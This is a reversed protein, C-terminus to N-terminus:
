NGIVFRPGEAIKEMGRWLEYRAYPERVSLIVENAAADSARAFRMVNSRGDDGILRLDYDRLALSGKVLAQMTEEGGAAQVSRSPHLRKGIWSNSHM